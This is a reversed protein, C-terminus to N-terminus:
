MGFVSSIMKFTPVCKHQLQDFMGGFITSLLDQNCQVREDANDM